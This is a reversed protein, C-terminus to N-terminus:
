NEGCNMSSGCEGILVYGPGPHPASTLGHCDGFLTFQQNSQHITGESTYCYLTTRRCCMDGCDVRVIIDRIPNELDFVFNIWTETCQMFSFEAFLLTNTSTCPFWGSWQQDNLFWDIYWEEALESVLYTFDNIENLLTTTDGSILLDIWNNILSDCQGWIPFARFNEFNFQLILTTPSSIVECLVVDFIARASCGPFVELDVTFDTETWIAHCYDYNSCGDTRSVSLSQYDPFSKNIKQKMLEIKHLDQDQNDVERECSVLILAFLAIFPFLNKIKVINKM